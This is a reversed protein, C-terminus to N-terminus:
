HFCYVNMCITAIVFTFLLALQFLGSPSIEIYIVNMRFKYITEDLEEGDVNANLNEYMDNSDSMSLSDKMPKEDSSDSMSLSDKNKNDIALQINTPTHIPVNTSPTTPSVLPVLTPPSSPALSQPQTPSLSPTISPKLSPAQTPTTSPPSTCDEDNIDILGDCDNDIGDNCIEETPTGPTCQIAGNICQKNAKCQMVNVHVKVAHKWYIILKGMAIAGIGCTGLGSIDNDISGDCNNDIGDCIEPTPSPGNCVIKGGVCEQTGQCAGKGCIGLGKINNDILGDCNDDMGNCIETSPAGQECKISGDICQANRECAGKGCIGLGKINNDILGDCNDDMGNCIETSPAGQECKISGDICQANRECAGKGCIGLGKIDNDIVGDCDNDIGDCIEPRIPGAVCQPSGGVCEANRQCAGKGCTELLNDIEGDCDNDIGDCIEATPPGAVCQASGGVCEANRQCAGKGCTELLNDIEGDCDNDIGDCIEATPPGAVCQASGGVCEANRQCAGEGCTGSINDMVVDCNNDKGDCKETAGLYVLPDTDDCDGDCESQGDGDQDTSDCVGPLMRHASGGCHADAGDIFGNCDNDIKDNCIELAGPHINPDNDNCDTGQVTNGNINVEGCYGDQDKDTICCGIDSVIGDCNNDIGNFCIELANPHIHPNTPDCDDSTYIGNDGLYGVDCYGDKDADVMCCNTNGIEIEGDCDNDVLDGCMELVGQAPNTDDCDFPPLNQCYGDNDLDICGAPPWPLPIVAKSVLLLCSLFLCAFRIQNTNKINLSM